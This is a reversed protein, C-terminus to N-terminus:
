QWTNMIEWSQGNYIEIFKRSGDGRFRMSGIVGSDSTSGNDKITYTVFSGESPKIDEIAKLRQELEQIKSTLASIDLESLVYYPNGDNYIYKLYYNNTAASGNPAKINGIGIGNDFINIESPLTSDKQVFKLKQDSNNFM